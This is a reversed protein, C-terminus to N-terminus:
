EGLGWWNTATLEHLGGPGRLSLGELFIMDELSEAAEYVWDRHSYGLKDRFSPLDQHQRTYM